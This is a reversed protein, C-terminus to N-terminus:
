NQNKKKELLLRCVLNERSQLESTHEESRLYISNSAIKDPESKFAGYLHIVKNQYNFPIQVKCKLEERNAVDPIFTSEYSDELAVLIQLKDAQREPIGSSNDFWSVEIEQASLKEVSKLYLG